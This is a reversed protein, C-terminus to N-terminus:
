VWLSGANISLKTMKTTLSKDDALPFIKYNLFKWFHISKKIKYDQNIFSRQLYSQVSRHSISNVQLFVRNVEKYSLVNM